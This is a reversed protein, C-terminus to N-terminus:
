LGSTSPEFGEGAVLICALPGTRVLVPGRAHPKHVSKHVASANKGCKGNRGLRRVARQGYGALALCVRHRAAARAAPQRMDRTRLEAHEYNVMPLLAESERFDRIPGSGTPPSPQRGGTLDARVSLFGLSSSSAWDDSRRLKRGASPASRAPIGRRAQRSYPSQGAREGPRAAIRGRRPCSGGLGDRRGLSRAM